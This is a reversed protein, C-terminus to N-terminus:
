YRGLQLQLVLPDTQIQGSASQENDGPAVDGVVTAIVVRRYACSNKAYLTRLGDKTDNVPNM